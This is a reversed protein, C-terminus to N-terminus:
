GGCIRKPMQYLISGNIRKYYPQQVDHLVYYNIADSLIISIGSLAVWILSFLPCILNDCMAMWQGSYDWMRVGMIHLAFEGSLLELITVIIGGLLMQVTLPIDWSIRDNIKDEIIMILGGVIGMLRYSYGRFWVEITTYICLGTFFLLPEKIINKYQEM